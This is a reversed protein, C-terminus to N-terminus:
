ASFASFVQSTPQLLIVYDFKKGFTDAYFNIAHEVVDISTALDTALATPRIFPVKAGYKKSVEAIEDDDTSVMVEDIFLCRLAAEITWAILPRGELNVINKRPMRKSGGRAPIIALISKGNIMLKLAM